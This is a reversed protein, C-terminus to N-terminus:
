SDFGFKFLLLVLDVLIIYLYPTYVLSLKANEFTKQRPLKRDLNEIELHPKEDYAFAQFWSNYIQFPVIGQKDADGRFYGEILRIRLSNSYQFTKWMAEIWWFLLAVLASFLWLSWTGKELGIAIAGICITASWGKITLFRRDFDEYIDQLKLYEDKLFTNKQDPTM